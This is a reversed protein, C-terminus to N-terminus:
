KFGIVTYYVTGVFKQSFNIRATSNTKDSIFINIDKNVSATIAPIASIGLQLASYDIDIFDVMNVPDSCTFIRPLSTTM